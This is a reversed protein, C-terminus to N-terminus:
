KTENIFINNVINNIIDNTNENNSLQITSVPIHLFSKNITILQNSNDLENTKDTLYFIKIIKNNLFSKVNNLFKISNIITKQNLNDDFIFYLKYNLNNFINWDIFALNPQIFIYVKKYYETIKLIDNTINTPNKKNLFYYHISKKDYFLLDKINAKKKLLKKNFPYFNIVGTSKINLNNKILYDIMKEIKDESFNILIKHM